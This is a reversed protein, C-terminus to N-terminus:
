TCPSNTWCGPGTGIINKYVTGIEGNTDVYIYQTITYIVNNTSDGNSWLLVGTGGPYDHSVTVNTLSIFYQSGDWEWKARSLININIDFIKIMGSDYADFGSAILPYEISQDASSQGTLFEMMSIVNPANEAGDWVIKASGSTYSTVLATMTGFTEPTITEFEDTYHAWVYMGTPAQVTAADDLWVRAGVNFTDGDSIFLPTPVGGNGAFLRTDEIENCTNVMCPVDNIQPQHYAQGIPYAPDPSVPNYEAETILTSITPLVGYYPEQLTLSYVVEAGQDGSLGNMDSSFYMKNNPLPIWISAGVARYHSTVTEGAAIQLEWVEISSDPHTFTITYQFAYPMALNLTVSHAWITYLGSNPGIAGEYTWDNGSTALVKELAHGAVTATPYGRFAMMDGPRKHHADENFGYLMERIVFYTCRLLDLIGNEADSLSGAPFTNHLIWTHYVAKNVSGEKWDARTGHLACGKGPVGTDNIPVRKGDHLDNWVQNEANTYAM